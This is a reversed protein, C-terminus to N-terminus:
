NINIIANRRTKEEKADCLRIACFLHRNRATRAPDLYDTSHDALLWPFINTFTPVKDTTTQNEEFGCNKGPLRLM